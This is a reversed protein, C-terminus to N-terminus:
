GREATYSLREEVGRQRRKRIADIGERLSLPEDGTLVYLPRLEKELHAGLQEFPLKM